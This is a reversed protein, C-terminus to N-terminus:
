QVANDSETVDNFSAGTNDYALMNFIFLIIVIISFLTQVYM